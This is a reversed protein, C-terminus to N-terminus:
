SKIERAYHARMEETIHGMLSQIRPTKRLERHTLVWLNTNASEAGPGIQVLDPEILADLCLLHSVGIGAKVAEILAHYSNVRQVVRDAKINHELWKFSPLDQWDDNWGVWHYHNVDDSEGFQQLYAKSAFLASSAQGVRRGVLEEPPSHAFRVSLHAQDANFNINKNSVVINLKINPHKRLFTALIPSIARVMGDSMSVKIEGEYTKPQSRLRQSLTNVNKEVAAAEELISLGAPTLEYGRPSRDFLQTNNSEEMAQIRRSVTAHNVGMSDAAGRISKARVVALFFRIDDWSM